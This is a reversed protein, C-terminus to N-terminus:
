GAGAFGGRAQGEGEFHVNEVVDGFGVSPSNCFVQDGHEGVPTM